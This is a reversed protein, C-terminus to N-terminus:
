ASGHAGMLYDHVAQLAVYQQAPRNNMKLITIGAEKIAKRMYDPTTGLTEALETISIITDNQIEIAM